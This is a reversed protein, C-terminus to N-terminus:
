NGNEYWELIASKLYIQTKDMEERFFHCLSLFTYNFITCYTAVTLDIFWLTNRGLLATSGSTFIFVPACLMLVSLAERLQKVAAFVM